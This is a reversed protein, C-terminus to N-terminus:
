GRIEINTFRSRSTSSSKLPPGNLAELHRENWQRHWQHPYRQDKGDISLTHTEPNPHYCSNSCSVHSSFDLTSIKLAPAIRRSLLPSLFFSLGDGERLRRSIASHAEEIWKAEPKTRFTRESHRPIKSPDEVAKYRDCQGCSLEGSLILRCVHTM